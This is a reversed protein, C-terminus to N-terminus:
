LGMTRSKPGVNPSIHSRSKNLKAALVGYLAFLVFLLFLNIGILVGYIKEM